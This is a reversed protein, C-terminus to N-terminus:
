ILVAGSYAGGQFLCQISLDLFKTLVVTSIQTFVTLVTLQQGSSIHLGNEGSASMMMMMVAHDELYYLM